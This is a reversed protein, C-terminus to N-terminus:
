EYDGPRTQAMAIAGVTAVLLLTGALEVSWLYESYMARGLEAIRDQHPEEAVTAAALDGKAPPIASPELLVSLLLILLFAGIVAGIAPSILKLDATTLRSAQAFMLVFMFVIIIAGAYVIMTAAGLFAISKLFFLGCVSLITTAFALTAHVPERLSVFSIASGLALGGLILLLSSEFDQSTRTVVLVAAAIFSAIGLGAKWKTGLIGSQLLWYGVAALMIAIIPIVGWVPASGVPLTTNAINWHSTM